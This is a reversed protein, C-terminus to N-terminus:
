STERETEEEEVPKENQKKKFQKQKKKFQKQEEPLLGVNLDWM